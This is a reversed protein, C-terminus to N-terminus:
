RPPSIASPIPSSIREGTMNGTSCWNNPCVSMVVSPLVRSPASSLAPTASIMVAIATSFCFFDRVTINM